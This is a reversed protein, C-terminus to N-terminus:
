LARRLAETEAPSSAERMLDITFLAAVPRHAADMRLIAPRLEEALRTSDQTELFRSFVPGLEGQVDERRRDARVSEVRRSAGIAILVLIVLSGGVLVWLTFGLPGVIVLFVRAGCM